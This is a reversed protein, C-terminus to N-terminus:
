QWISSVYEMFKMYLDGSVRPDDANKFMDTLMDSMKEKEIATLKRGACRSEFSDIYYKIRSTTNRVASTKMASHWATYFDARESTPMKLLDVLREALRVRHKYSTLNFQMADVGSLKFEKIGLKSVFQAFRYQATAETLAEEVISGYSKWAALTEDTLYFKTSLSHIYEHLLSKIANAEKASLERGSTLSAKITEWVDRRLYITEEGARFMGMANPLDDVIDAIKIYSAGSGRGLGIEEGIDQLMELARYAADETGDEVGILKDIRDQETKSLKKVTKQAQKAPAEQTAAGVRAVKVDDVFTVGHKHLMRRLYAEMEKQTLGILELERPDLGADEWAQVMSIIRQQVPTAEIESVILGGPEALEASFEVYMLPALRCRCKGGCVTHGAQPYGFNGWEEWTYGEGDQRLAIAM